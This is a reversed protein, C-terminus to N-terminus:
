KKQPISALIQVMNWRTLITKPAFKGARARVLFGYDQISQYRPNMPDVDSYIKIQSPNRDPRGVKVLLDIFDEKSLIKEPYAYNGDIIGKRYAVLAYGQFSDGIPIDLFHSTGSNPKIDYFKMINILAERYSVTSKQGFLWSPEQFLCKKDIMPYLLRGLSSKETVDDFRSKTCETEERWVYSAITTEKWEQPFISTSIMAERTSESESSTSINAPTSPTSPASSFSVGSVGGLYTNIFSMPNITYKEAKDKGLGINIADYFGVWASNAEATTFPWYPHFPADATDIQIHLHPTTAIGTMWVRGIMDGKRIKTGEKVLIESLHLYGSYLSVKKGNYDVGDHRVVIFKNWTPDAEVTRVVVGNAISLVPTGIPARIDQGLHSWVHEKYDLKYDWMYQTIYTYHLITSANSTNNTDLLTLPDYLPIPQYESISIDEFRKSKDQNAVKTWNPIYAIPMITGDFPDSVINTYSDGGANM